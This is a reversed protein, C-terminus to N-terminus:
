AGCAPLNIRPKALIEAGLDAPHSYHFGAAHAKFAVGPETRTHIYTCFTHTSVQERRAIHIKKPRRRVDGIFSYDLRRELM